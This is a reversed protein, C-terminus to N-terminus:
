LLYFKLLINLITETVIVDVKKDHPETPLNETILESFIPVLTPVSKKLNSIFRDYYGKGYGLRFGNKDASLAPVIILDPIIDTKKDTNPELVGFTGKILTDGTKYEYFEM